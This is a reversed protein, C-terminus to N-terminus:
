DYYHPAKKLKAITSFDHQIWLQANTKKLFSDINKRSSRTQDENFDFVPVRDLTKEEPYHYLDGSLVINGTIRLKLFLVQHGPTHGPAAKIIVTGDGFVDYEDTNIISTKNNRLVAYTSPRTVGPPQNAFMSDHENQRVLWTANSFENANATHDYHYHSLAIYTIDTPSYGAEALQLKIPKTLTIDRQLNPLMLKYLFPSGTFKWSTDPIAGTDWILTGRPHVILFFPVSMRSIAVENPELGFRKTDMNELTGGDFVYLRLRTEQSKESTLKTYETNTAIFPCVNIAFFVFIISIFPKLIM